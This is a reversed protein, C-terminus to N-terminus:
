KKREKKEQQKLEALLADLRKYNGEWIEQVQELWDALHVFCLDDYEGHSLEVEESRIRDTIPYPGEVQDLVRDFSARDMACNLYALHEAREGILTRM